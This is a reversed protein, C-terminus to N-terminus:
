EHEMLEPYGMEELFDNLEDGALEEVLFRGSKAIRVVKVAGCGHTSVNNYSGCWGHLRPRNSHNTHAPQDCMFYREACTNENDNLILFARDGVNYEQEDIWRTSM